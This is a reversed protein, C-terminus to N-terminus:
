HALLPHNTILCCTDRASNYRLPHRFVFVIQQDHTSVESSFRLVYTRGFSIGAQITEIVLSTAVSQPKSDEATPNIAMDLIIEDADTKFMRAVDDDEEPMQIENRSLSRIEHLPIGHLAADMDKSKSLFLHSETLAARMKLWRDGRSTLLMLFNEKVILDSKPMHGDLENIKPTFFVDQGFPRLLTRCM